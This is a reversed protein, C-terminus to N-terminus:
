AKCMPVNAMPLASSMPKIPPCDELRQVPFDVPVCAKAPQYYSEMSPSWQRLKEPKDNLPQLPQGFGTSFRPPVPAEKPAHAVPRAVVHSPVKDTVFHRRSAFLLVVLVVLVLVIALLWM